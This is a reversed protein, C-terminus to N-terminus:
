TNEPRNHQNMSKSVWRLNEVRNDLKDQNIHDIESYNHPNEIFSEAVLRHVYMRKQKVTRGESNKVSINVSEYCRKNGVGGGRLHTGCLVRSPSNKGDFNKHPLRYVEGKETIFYGPFNKIEIM